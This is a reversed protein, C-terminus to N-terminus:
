FDFCFESIYFSCWLLGYVKRGTDIRISQIIRTTIKNWLEKKFNLFYNSQDVHFIELASRRLNYRRLHIERIQSHPWKFDFGM